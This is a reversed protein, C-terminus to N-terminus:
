YSGEVKYVIGICDAGYEDAYEDAKRDMSAAVVSLPTGYMGVHMKRTVDALVNGDLDLVVFSYVYDM